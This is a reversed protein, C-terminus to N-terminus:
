VCSWMWVPTLSMRLMHPKCIPSHGRCWAIELTTWLGAADADSPFESASDRAAGLSTSDSGKFDSFCQGVHYGLRPDSDRCGWRELRNWPSVEWTFRVCALIHVLIPPRQFTMLVDDNHCESWIKWIGGRGLLMVFIEKSVVLFTDSTSTCGM